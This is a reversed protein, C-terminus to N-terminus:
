AHAGGDAAAQAASSASAASSAPAASSAGHAGKGPVGADPAAGHGHRHHTSAAEAERDERAAQAADRAVALDLPTDVSQAQAGNTDIKLDPTDIRNMDENWEDEVVRRIEAFTPLQLDPQYKLRIGGVHESIRLLAEAMGDVKGEREAARFRVLYDEVSKAHDVIAEGAEDDPEVVGEAKADPWGILVADAYELAARQSASPIGDEIAVLFVYRAQSLRESAIRLWQMPSPERLSAAFAKVEADDPLVTYGKAGAKGSGAKGTGAGAAGAPKASSGDKGQKDDSM